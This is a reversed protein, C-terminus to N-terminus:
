RIKSPVYNSSGNQKRGISLGKRRKLGRVQLLQGYAIKREMWKM